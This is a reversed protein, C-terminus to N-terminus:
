GMIARYIAQLIFTIASGLLAWLWGFRYFAIRREEIILDGMEKGVKAYVEERPALGFDFKANKLKEKTFKYSTKLAIYMVAIILSLICFGIALATIPEQSLVTEARGYGGAGLMILNSDM